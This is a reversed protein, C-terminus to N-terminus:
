KASKAVSGLDTNEEILNLKLEDKRPSSHECGETRLKEASHEATKSRKSLNRATAEALLRKMEKIKEKKKKDELIQKKAIFNDMTKAIKEMAHKTLKKGNKRENCSVPQSSVVQEEFFMRHKIIDRLQKQRDNFVSAYQSKVIKNYTDITGEPLEQVLAM